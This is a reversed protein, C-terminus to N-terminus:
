IHKPHKSLPSDPQACGSALVSALLGGHSTCTPAAYGGERMKEEARKSLRPTFTCELLELKEKNERSAILEARRIAARAERSSGRLGDAHPRACDARPTAMSAAPTGAQRSEDLCAGAKHAHLEDSGARGTPVRGAGRQEFWEQQVGGGSGSISLEAAEQIRGRTRKDQGCQGSNHRSGTARDEMYSAEEQPSKTQKFTFLGHQALNQDAPETRKFNTCKKAEKAERASLHLVQLMSFGSSSPRNIRSRCLTKFHQYSVQMDQMTDQSCELLLSSTQKLLQEASIRGSYGWAQKSVFKSALEDAQVKSSPLMLVGSDDPELMCFLHRLVADESKELIKNSAMTLYKSNAEDLVIQLQEKEM